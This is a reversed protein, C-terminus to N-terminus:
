QDDLRVDKIWKGAPSKDPRLMPQKTLPDIQPEFREYVMGPKVNADLWNPTVGAKPARPIISPHNQQYTEPFKYLSQNLDLDTNPNPHSYYWDQAESSRRIQDEAQNQIFGMALLRGQHNSALDPLAATNQTIEANRATGPGVAAKQSMQTSLNTLVRQFLDRTTMTRMQAEPLGVNNEFYGIMDKHNNFFTSGSEPLDAEVSRLMQLGQVIGTANAADTKYNTITAADDKVAQDRQTNIQLDRNKLTELGVAQTNAVVTSAMKRYNEVAADYAKGVDTNQGENFKNIAADATAQKAAAANKEDATLAAEAQAQDAYLKPASAPNLQAQGPIQARAQALGQARSAFAALTNPDLKPDYEGITPTPLRHQAIYDGRDGPYKTTVGGVTIDPNEPPATPQPAPPVVSTDPVTPTPPTTPVAAAAARRQAVQAPTEGPQMTDQPTIPPPAAPGASPTPVTAGISAVKYPAPPQAGGSPAQTAQARRAAALAIGQDVAAPSLWTKGSEHPQQALIFARQVKPDALNVPADPDVGAAKAVDSVYSGLDAKPDGVWRTVAARITNVGANAYGNLTDSHAAVGTAADPFAAVYRGGAVPIAGTAGTPLPAGPTVMVNGSNNGQQGATGANPDRALIPAGISGPAATGISTPPTQGAIQGAKAALQAQYQYQLLPLATKIAELHLEQQKEQYTQQAALRAASVEESGGLSQEAGSVGQAFVQGFTRPMTSYGSAASLNAGFNLLARTGAQEREAPSMGTDGGGLAEGLLSATSRDVPAPPPAAPQQLGLAAIAAQISPLDIPGAPAAPAANPDSEAM